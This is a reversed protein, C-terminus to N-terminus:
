LFTHVSRCCYANLSPTTAGSTLRQGLFATLLHNSTMRDTYANSDLAIIMSFMLGTDACIAPNQAHRVVMVRSRYKGAIMKTRFSELFPFSVNSSNNVKNTEQCRFLSNGVQTTKDSNKNPHIAM